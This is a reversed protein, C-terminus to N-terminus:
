GELHAFRKRLFAHYEERGDTGEVWEMYRVLWSYRSGTSGSERLPAPRQAERDAM